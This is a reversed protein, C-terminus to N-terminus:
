SWLNLLRQKQVARKNPQERMERMQLAYLCSGYAYNSTRLERYHGLGM